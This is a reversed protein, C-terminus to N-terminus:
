HQCVHAYRAKLLEIALRNTDAGVNGTSTVETQGKRKDPRPLRQGHKCFLLANDPGIAHVAQISGVHRLRGHGAAHKEPLEKPKACQWVAYTAARTVRAHPMAGCAGIM